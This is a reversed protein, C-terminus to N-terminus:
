KNILSFKIGKRFYAEEFNSNREIAQNYKSIADQFKKLAFLAM